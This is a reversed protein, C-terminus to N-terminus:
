SAHCFFYPSSGGSGPKSFKVGLCNNQTDYALMYQEFVRGSHIAFLIMVLMCAGALNRITPGIDFRGSNEASKLQVSPDPIFGTSLHVNQHNTQEKV